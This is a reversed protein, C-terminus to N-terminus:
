PGANKNSPPSFIISKASSLNLLRASLGESLIDLHTSGTSHIHFKHNPNPGNTYLVQLQHVHTTNDKPSQLLNKWKRVKKILFRNWLVLGYMLPINYLRGAIIHKAFILKSWINPEFCYKQDKAKKSEWDNPWFSQNTM